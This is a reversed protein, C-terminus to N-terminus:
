VKNSLVDIQEIKSFLDDNATELDKSLEQNDANAKVLLSNTDSLKATEAAVRQEMKELSVELCKVKAELNQSELVAADRADLLETVAQNTFDTGQRATELEARTKECSSRAAQLDTELLDIKESLALKAYDAAELQTSLSQKEKVLEAATSENLSIQSRLQAVAQKGSEVEKQAISLEDNVQKLQRLFDAKESETNHKAQELEERCADLDAVAKETAATQTVLDQELKEM